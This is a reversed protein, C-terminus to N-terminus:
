EAETVVGATGRSRVGHDELFLHWGVLRWPEYRPRNRTSLFPDVSFSAGALMSNSIGGTTGGISTNGDGSEGTLGVEYALKGLPM